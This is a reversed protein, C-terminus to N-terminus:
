PYRRAGIDRRFHAGEFAIEEVAAYVQARAAAVTEGTATVGLVRGGATLVQDGDRRTGAHFVMVGARAAARELGRIPQGATYAGPYGAAAMVVCVAAREGFRVREPLRGTATDHLVTALDDDLRALLAQTEPDGFRCNFELARPGRATLM